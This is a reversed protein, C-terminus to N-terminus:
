RTFKQITGDLQIRASQTPRQVNPRVGRTEPATSGNGALSPYGTSPYVISSGNAGELPLARSPESDAQNALQPPDVHKSLQPMSLNNPTPATPSFDSRPKDSDITAVPAELEMGDFETPSPAEPFPTSDMIESPSASPDIFIPGRQEAVQQGTTDTPAAPVEVTQTAVFPNEVTTVRVPDAEWASDPAPVAEKQQMGKLLFLLVAIAITTVSLKVIWNYATESLKEGEPLEDAAADPDHLGFQAGQDFRQTPEVTEEALKLTPMPIPKPTEEEEMSPLPVDFQSSVPEAAEISDVRHFRDGPEHRRSGVHPLSTLVPVGFESAARKRQQMRRPSISDSTTTSNAM